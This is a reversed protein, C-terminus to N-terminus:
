KSSNVFSDREFEELVQLVDRLRPRKFRDDEDGNRRRKERDELYREAEDLENRWWDQIMTNGAEDGMGKRVVDFVSGKWGRTCKRVLQRIM